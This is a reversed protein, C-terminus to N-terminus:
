EDYVFDLCPKTTTAWHKGNAGETDFRIEQRHRFSNCPTKRKPGKRHGFTNGGPKLGTRYKLEYAATVCAWPETLASEAYGTDPKVPILYNGHDGHLIRGDIV